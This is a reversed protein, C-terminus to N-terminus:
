EAKLAQIERGIRLLEEDGLLSEALPFLNAEEDEAHSVVLEELMLVQDDWGTEGPDMAGLLGKLKEHEDYSKQVTDRAEPLEELKPYFLTEEIRTHLELLGKLKGFLAVDTPKLDGATLMDLMKTAEEHDVMLLQTAKM